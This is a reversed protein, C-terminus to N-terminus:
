EIVFDIENFQQTSVENLYKLILEKKEKMLHKAHIELPVSIIITDNKIEKLKMPEFWTSYVLSTTESQIKSKVYDLINSKNQTNKIYEENELIEDISIEFVKSLEKLQYADPVTQNTEWNSITQRTVNIKEALQEQSYNYKKRLDFIKKGILM